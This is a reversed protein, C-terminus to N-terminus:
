RASCLCIVDDHWGALWGTLSSVTLHMQAHDHFASVLKRKRMIDDIRELFPPTDAAPERASSLQPEFPIRARNEEEKVEMIQGALPHPSVSHLTHLLPTNLM